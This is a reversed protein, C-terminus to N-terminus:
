REDEVTELLFHSSELVHGERDSWQNSMEPVHCPDGHHSLVVDDGFQLFEVSLVFEQLFPSM